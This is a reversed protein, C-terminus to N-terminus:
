LEALPEYLIERVPSITIVPINITMYTLSNNSQTEYQFFM